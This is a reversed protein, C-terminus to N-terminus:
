VRRDARTSVWQIGALDTAVYNEIDTFMNFANLAGYAAENLDTRVTMERYSTHRPVSTNWVERKLQREFDQETPTDRGSPVFLEILGRNEDERTIRLYWASAIVDTEVSVRLTGYTGTAL